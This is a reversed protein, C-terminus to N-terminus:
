ILLIQFTSWIPAMAEGTLPNVFNLSHNVTEHVFGLKSLDKYAAWEDSRITTGPCIHRNMIPMLPKKDRREVLFLRVESKWVIGFVWPGVVGEGYNQRAPPFANGAM